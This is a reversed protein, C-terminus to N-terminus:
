GLPPLPAYGRILPLLNSLNLDGSLLVTTARQVWPSLHGSVPLIGISPIDLQYGYLIEHASGISFMPKTLDAIILNSRTLFWLDKFITGYHDGSDGAKVLEIVQSFPYLTEEPLKYPECLSKVHRKQLINLLPLQERSYQEDVTHWPSYTLYGLQGLTDQLPKVWSPPSENGFISFSFYILPAYRNGVKPPQEEQKPPPAQTKIEEQKAKIEDAETKLNEISEKIKDNMNEM